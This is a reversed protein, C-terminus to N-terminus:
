VAEVRRLRLMGILLLAIPIMGLVYAWDMMPKPTEVAQSASAAPAAQEEQLPKEEVVPESEPQEGSLAAALAEAGILEEVHDTYSEPFLAVHYHPPWRERTVDLLGRRELKLLVSELWQRSRTRQSIRLDVAIGTPHVSLPHSNRPQQSTPRTLSTIVLKEGTAERYQAALREIFLRMEPRAVPFSVGDNVSYDKNGSLVVLDGAAILEDVEAPTKVFEFGEQKAIQNQRAVSSPSGKLTTPVNMDGGRAASVGTLMLVLAVVVIRYTM